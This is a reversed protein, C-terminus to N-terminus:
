ADFKVRIEAIGGRANRRVEVPYYGDGGLGGICVGLGKHGQRFPFAAVDNKELADFRNCFADWTKAPHETADPNVFYCPDGIWLLGADVGVKGAAEWEETKMDQGKRTGGAAWRSPMTVTVAVTV